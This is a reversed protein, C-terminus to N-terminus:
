PTVAPLRVGLVAAIIVLFFIMAVLAMYALKRSDVTIPKSNTIVLRWQNIDHVESELKGVRGNTHKTQKTNEKLEDHVEKIKDLVLSQYQEEYYDREDQTRRPTM